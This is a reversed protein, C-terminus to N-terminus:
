NNKIISIKMMDGNIIIKEERISYDIIEDYGIYIVQEKYHFGFGVEIEPEFKVKLHQVGFIKHETYINVDQGKIESLAEILQRM